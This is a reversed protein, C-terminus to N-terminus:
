GLREKLQRAYRRSLVLPDKIEKLYIRYSYNMWKEIKEVFELNIITSKHIRSFCNEPLRKEWETMTKLVLGSPSRTLFVKSYDGVAQICIIDAIKLFRMKNGVMLFLRDDYTLMKGTIKTVDGSEIRNITTQLRKPSVPKLLYDLANVEFARIAFEDFATVFIVHGSFNIKELLDFGSEGPMQIDLFIIDPHWAKICEIASPVDWAEGVVEINDFEALLSMLELRALREDEVIITKYKDKKIM